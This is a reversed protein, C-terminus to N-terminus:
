LESIIMKLGRRLAGLLATGLSPRTESDAIGISRRKGGKEAAKLIDAEPGEIAREAEKAKADILGSNEFTKSRREYERAARIGEQDSSDSDFAPQLHRSDNQRIANEARFWQELDKGQSCHEEEWIQYARDRILRETNQDM